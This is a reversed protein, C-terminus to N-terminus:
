KSALDYAYGWSEDAMIIMKWWEDCEVRVSKSCYECLSKSYLHFFRFNSINAAM